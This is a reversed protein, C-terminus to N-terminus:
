AARFLSSADIVTFSILASATLAHEFLAHAGAADAFELLQLATRPEVLHEAVTAECLRQLTPVNSAM